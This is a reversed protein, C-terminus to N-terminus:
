HTAGGRSQLRMSTRLKKLRDRVFEGVDIRDVVLRHL